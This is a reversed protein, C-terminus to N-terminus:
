ACVVSFADPRSMSSGGRNEELTGSSESTKKLPPAASHRQSGMPIIEAIGLQTGRVLVFVLLPDVSDPTFCRGM